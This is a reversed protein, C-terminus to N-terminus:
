PREALLAEVLREFRMSRSAKILITGHRPLTRALALMGNLDLVETDPNGTLVAAAHDGHFAVRDLGRSQLGLTEHHHDAEHALERMDGLLAVRPRPAAQLLALAHQMSAPNANYTDDILIFGDHRQVHLRGPELNADPLREAAADLDIGLHDAVALSAIASEALGRGVGPLPIPGRPERKPPQVSLTPALADGALTGSWTAPPLTTENPENADHLVYPTTRAALAPDLRRWAALAAYRHTAAQLLKSKEHAVTAVDGLGDLHSAAIATLLAVTPTVLSALVDMEGVHDIGTEIVLPRGDDDSWAKLLIGALAHPTNLNGSSAHAHLTAALLGRATTKGASGTIAVVPGGYNRRAWRGLTLMADGPHAVQLGQPHPQDSVILSAGAALAAEAHEIGHHDQGPLAFFADGERIRGSHHSAGRIADLHTTPEPAGILHALEHAKLSRSPPTDGLRTPLDTAHM